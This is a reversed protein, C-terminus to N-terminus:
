ALSRRTAATILLCVVAGLVAVPPGPPVDLWYAVYLGAVGEALALVLACAVLGRISGTLMRAAAAPLVYVATVLLAGVAPIAAVAAVAVLGLLLLDARGAPLGLAGAGDPDFGVASWTRGLALAAATAVAAVGASVALDETGLGLLTGFLLRDVAAGSEFVDSALIVGTALAAVLLLATGEGHERGGRGTRQVGGAYGLAVAMGAITPSIGSADAVVLGPFTASGAAHSFFALHRLVIWAGLVGGSISLLLLEFLAERLFPLDALDLPSPVGALRVLIIRLVARVSTWARNDPTGAAFRKQACQSVGV